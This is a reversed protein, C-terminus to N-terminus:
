QSVNNDKTDHGHSKQCPPIKPLIRMLAPGAKLM